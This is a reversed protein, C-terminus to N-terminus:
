RGGRPRTNRHGRCRRYDCRCEGEERFGARVGLRVGTQEVLYAAAAAVGLDDLLQPRLAGILRRMEGLGNAALQEMRGIVDQVRDRDDLRTKLEDIDLRLATLTQGLEDHVSQAIRKREAEVETQERLAFERLTRQSRRRETIDTVTGILHQPMGAADRRTVLGHVSIWQEAGDSRLM